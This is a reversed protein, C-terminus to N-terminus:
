QLFTKKNIKLKVIIYIISVISIPLLLLFISDYGLTILLYAILNFVLQAIFYSSSVKLHNVKLDNALVQYLHRKHPKFINEKRYLRELITLGGDIIYISLVLFILPNETKMYFSLVFYIVSLGITISGIDGAFCKPSKRFNFIGFVLTAIILIGLLGSETFPIYFTNLILLITYTALTNLFTLGNIGDMFNYINLFGISIIYVLAIALISYFNFLDLSYFILTFALIHVLIRVKSSLSILDDIFSIIAVLSISGLLYSYPPEIKNFWLGYIVFAFFLIIGGGRITPTTHSSRKNPKDIINFKDALKLYLVELILLIIGLIVYTTINM